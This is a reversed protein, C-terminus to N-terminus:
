ADRAGEVLVGRLREVEAEALGCWERVYGEVGGFVSEVEGLARVMSERHATTSKRVKEFAGEESLGPEAM